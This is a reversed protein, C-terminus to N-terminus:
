DQNALNEFFSLTDNEEGAEETPAAVVPKEKAAKTKTEKAAVTKIKKPEVVPEVETDEAKPLATSASSLVLKLREQLKEYTKFNKRDIFEGLNYMSSLITDINKEDGDALPSPDAFTSKDYNAYGEVKSMKFKFDCGEFIDFVNVPKEDEFTPKAKEMIKDFIKKGYKFLMVKGNNEPHKPDSIVLINSIYNLKRKQASAIKKNAEIGTEWLQTNYESCPDSEGFTTLSNEIYWRGSPGKFSHSFTRVWPLDVVPFTSNPDPETSPLFRIVGYGNGAKDPELQWIRNDSYDKSASNGSEFASLMKQFESASKTKQSTLKTNM